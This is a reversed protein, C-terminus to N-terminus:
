CFAKKALDVVTAVTKGDVFEDLIKVAKDGIRKGMANVIGDNIRGFSTAGEIQKLASGWAIGLGLSALPSYGAELYEATKDTGGTLAIYTSVPINLLSSYAKAVFMSNVANATLLAFEGVPSKARELAKQRRLNAQREYALASNNEYVDTIRRGINRRWEPAESSIIEGATFKKGSKVGMKESMNQGRNMHQAQAPTIYQKDNAELVGGFTKGIKTATAGPSYVWEGVMAALQNDVANDYIGKRLQKDMGGLVNM